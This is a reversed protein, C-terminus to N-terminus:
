CILICFENYNYQIKTIRPDSYIQDVLRQRNQSRYYRYNYGLLICLKRINRDYVGREPPGRDEDNKSIDPFTEKLPYLLLLYDYPDQGQRYEQRLEKILLDFDNRFRDAQAVFKPLYHELSHRLSLSYRLSM